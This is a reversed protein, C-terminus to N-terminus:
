LFTLWSLNREQSSFYSFSKLVTKTFTSQESCLGQCTDTILVLLEGGWVEGLWHFAISGFGLVLQM